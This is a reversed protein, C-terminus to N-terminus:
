DEDESDWCWDSSDEDLPIDQLLNSDPEVNNFWGVRKEPNQTSNEM